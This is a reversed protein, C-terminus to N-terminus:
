RCRLRVLTDRDRCRANQPAPDPGALADAGSTDPRGELFLCFRHWGAQNTRRAEDALPQLSCAAWCPAARGAVFSSLRCVATAPLALGIPGTTRHWKQPLHLRHRVRVASCRVVAVAAIPRIGSSVKEVYVGPYTRAGYSAGTSQTIRRRRAPSKVTPGKRASPSRTGRKSGTTGGGQVPGRHGWVRRTQLHEKRSFADPHTM